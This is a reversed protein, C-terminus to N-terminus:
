ENTASAVRQLRNYKMVTPIYMTPVVGQLGDNVLLGQYIIVFDHVYTIKCAYARFAIVNM